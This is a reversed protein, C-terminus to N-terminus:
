AAKAAKFKDKATEVVDELTVIGQVTGRGVQAREDHLPLQDSSFTM